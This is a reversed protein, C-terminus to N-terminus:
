KILKKNFITICTANDDSLLADSLVIYLKHDISMEKIGQQDYWPKTLDLYDVDFLNMFYGSTMYGASDIVRPSVLDYEHTGAQIEKKLSTGFTGDYLHVENLKINYKEEIIKNRKYVVDGITDGSEEEATLDAQEWEHSGAVGFTLINFKHGGYDAEPLDPLIRELAAQQGSSDDQGANQANDLPLDGGSNTEGQAGGCSFLMAMILVLIAAGSILKFTRIHKKSNM